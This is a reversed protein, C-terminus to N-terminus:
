NRLKKLRRRLAHRSLGLREAADGIRGGSALLADAISDAGDPDASGRTGVQSPPPLPLSAALGLAAAAVPRRPDDHVLTVREMVNRLERVNGPFSYAELAQIAEATLRPPAAENWMSTLFRRAIAAIDEPRERLPPLRIEFVTLRFFLDDRLRRAQLLDRLDFRTAAVIRAKVRVEANSGVRRLVRDELVRLLKGQLAPSLDAVEDLFVTGRGAAEIAGIRRSVAGTFAGREHGFLESEIVTETMAACDVTIFPQDSRESLEHILRAVHSKGTGTEGILLTTVSSRAARRALERVQEMAASHGVLDDLVGSTGSVEDDIELEVRVAAIRQVVEDLRGNKDVYDQAGARVATVAEDVLPSASACFILAGPARASLVGLLQASSAPVGRPEVVVVEFVIRGALEHAAELSVARSVSYGREALSAGLRASWEDDADVILVQLM